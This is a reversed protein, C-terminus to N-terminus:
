HESKIGVVEGNNGGEATHLLRQAARNLLVGGQQRLVRLQLRNRVPRLCLLDLGLHTSPCTPMHWSPACHSGSCEDHETKSCCHVPLKRSYDLLLCVPAPRCMSSACSNM